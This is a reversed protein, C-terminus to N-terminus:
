GKKAVSRDRTPRRPVLLRKLVIAVELCKGLVTGPLDTLQDVLSLLGGLDVRLDHKAGDVQNIRTEIRLGDPRIETRTLETSSAGRYQYYVLPQEQAKRSIEELRPGADVAIRREREHNEVACPDIAGETARTIGARRIEEEVFHKVAAALREREEPSRGHDDGGPVLDFSIKDPPQSM